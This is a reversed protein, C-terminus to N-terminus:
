CNLCPRLLPSFEVRIRPLPICNKGLQNGMLGIRILYAISTMCNTFYREGLSCSARISESIVKLEDLHPWEQTCGM